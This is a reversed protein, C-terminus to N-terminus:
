IFMMLCTQPNSVDASNPQIGLLLQVFVVKSSSNNCYMVTNLIKRLFTQVCKKIIPMALDTCYRLLGWWIQSTVASICILFLSCIDNEPKCSCRQESGCKM